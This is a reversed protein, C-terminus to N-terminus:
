SGEWGFSSIASWFRLFSLLFVLSFDARALCIYVLLFKISWISCFLSIFNCILSAKFCIFRREFSPSEIEALIRSPTRESIRYFNWDWENIFSYFDEGKSCDFSNSTDMFPLGLMKFRLGIWGPLLTRLFFHKGLSFSFGKTEKEGFWLFSFSEISERKDGTSFALM